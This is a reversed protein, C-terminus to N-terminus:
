HEQRDTEIDHIMLCAACNGDTEHAISSHAPVRDIHPTMDRTLLIVRPQSVEREIYADWEAMEAATM